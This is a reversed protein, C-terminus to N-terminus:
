HLGKKKQRHYTYSLSPSIFLYIIFFPNHHTRRLASKHTDGVFLWVCLSLSPLPNKERKAGKRRKNDTAIEEM